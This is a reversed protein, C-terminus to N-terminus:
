PRKPARRSSMKRISAFPTPGSWPGRCVDRPWPSAPRGKSKKQRGQRRPKLLPPSPTMAKKQRWIRPSTAKTTRTAGAGVGSCCRSVSWSAMTPPTIFPTTDWTYSLCIHPPSTTDDLDKTVLSFRLNGDPSPDLRKLLRISSPTSLPDHKFPLDSPSPMMINQRCSEVAARAAISQKMRPSKRALM